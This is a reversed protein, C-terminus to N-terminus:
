QILTCRVIALTSQSPQSDAEPERDEGIPRLFQRWLSSLWEVKDPSKRFGDAARCRLSCRVDGDCTM